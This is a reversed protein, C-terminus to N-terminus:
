DSLGGTFLGGFGIVFGNVWKGSNGDWGWVYDVRIVKLINEIGVFIESYNRNADVYFANSGTVLGWNLKKFIPIKNTLLGNLHWEIHGSAFFDEGTSNAYYPALQFSKVFQSAVITQNGMFHQFDPLQVRQNKIFGGVSTYYKVSGGLKMNFEDAISFRWKGFEEDAGFINAWAKTLELSFVPADSGM